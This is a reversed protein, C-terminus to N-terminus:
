TGQERKREEAIVDEITMGLKEALRSATDLDLLSRRNGTEIRYYGGPTCGLAAAMEDATLRKAHRAKRLWERKNLAM